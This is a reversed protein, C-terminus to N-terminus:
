PLLIGQSRMCDPSVGLIATGPLDSAFAPSSFENRNEKVGARRRVGALDHM